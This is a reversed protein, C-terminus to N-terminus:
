HVTSGDGILLRDAACLVLKYRSTVLLGRLLLSPRRHRPRHKKEKHWELDKFSRPLMTSLYNTDHVVFRRGGGDADAVWNDMITRNKMADNGDPTQSAMSGKMINKAISTNRAVSAHM